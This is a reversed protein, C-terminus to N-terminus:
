LAKKSARISAKTVWSACERPFGQWIVKVMRVGNDDVKEDILEEVKYLSSDDKNVRNMEDAYFSGELVQGTCDRLKYLNIHWQRRRSDVTYLEETWRRNAERRFLNRRYSIRVKAGVPFRYPKTKPKKRDLYLLQYVLHENQETVDAPRMRISGHITNNYSKDFDQLKDLYRDTQNEYMYRAMKTRLTRHFREVTVCSGSGGAFFHRIKYEKMLAAWVKSKFESGRDSCLQQYQRGSQQLIDRMAEEVPGGEKSKLARVYAYRSLEEIATLLFRVGSNDTALRSTDVLDVSLQNDISTVHVAPRPFKQKAPKYLSYSSLTDLFDQVDKLKVNKYYSRRKVEGLLKTAGAFSAGQSPTTYIQKLYRHFDKIQKETPKTSLKKFKQKRKAVM